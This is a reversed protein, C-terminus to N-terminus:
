SLKQQKMDEGASPILLSLIKQQQWDSSNNEKTNRQVSTFIFMKKKQKNAMWIEEESKKVDAWKRMPNDIINIQPLVNKKQKNAMWVEKVVAWKRM